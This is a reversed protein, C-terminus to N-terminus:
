LKLDTSNIININYKQKFEKFTKETVAEYGGIVSMCDELVYIKSTIEPRDHFHEAIQVISKLVCHSQAEGAIIIKDYGEILNLFDINYTNHEDYEPKIIGYMESFPDLGKVLNITRSQRAISHYLVMNAFQNELAAGSTGQLCHYTWIMIEQLEQVYKKSKKPFLPSWKGNNVDNWTITTYPAPNNGDKDFWWCPFFIQQPIHTDLSVAIKTIKEFNNYIFKTLNEVDKHSGQVGLTGKEMFDQQMDIGVLIVKERDESTPNINEKDAKVFLKNMDKTNHKEGIASVDVIEEYNAKLM